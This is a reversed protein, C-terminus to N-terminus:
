KSSASVLKKKISLILPLKSYAVKLPNVELGEDGETLQMPSSNDVTVITKVPNTAADSQYKGFIEKVGDEYLESSSVGSTISLMDPPVAVVSPNPSVPLQESANQLEDERTVMPPLSPEHQLRLSQHQEYQSLLYSRFQQDMESLNGVGSRNNQEIRKIEAMRHQVHGILKRLRPQNYSKFTLTRIGTSISIHASSMRHSYDIQNITDFRVDEVNLYGLPKKDILLVRVNTACLLSYGGEYWGNVCEFIEEDALLISALEETEPRNRGRGNFGVKKLQDEVSKTSVM